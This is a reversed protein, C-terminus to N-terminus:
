KTSIGQYLSNLNFTGNMIKSFEPTSLLALMGIALMYNLIVFILTARAWNKKSDQMKNSFSLYTLIILPCFIGIIPILMSGLLIGYIGIWSAFSISKESIDPGNQVAAQQMQPEIHFAGQTQERFSSGCYECFNAEENQTSRGCTNCVM